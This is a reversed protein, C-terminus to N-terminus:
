ITSIIPAYLKEVYEKLMRSASYKYVIIERGASMKQRWKETLDPNNGAYYEPKIEKDLLYMLRYEYENFPFVSKLGSLRALLSKRDEQPLDKIWENLRKDLDKRNM